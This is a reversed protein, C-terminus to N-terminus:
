VANSAVEARSISGSSGSALYAATPPRINASHTSHLSSKSHVTRHGPIFDAGPRLAVRQFGTVYKGANTAGSSVSENDAGALHKTIGNVFGNYGEKFILCTILFGIHVVFALAYGSIGVYLAKCDAEDFYKWLHHGISKQVLHRYRRDACVLVMNSMSTIEEYTFGLAIAHLFPLVRQWRSTLKTFCSCGAVFFLFFSCFWDKWVLDTLSLSYFELLYVLVLGLAAMSFIFLIFKSIVFQHSGEIM